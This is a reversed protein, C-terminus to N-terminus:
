EDSVFGTGNCHSCPKGFFEAITKNGARIQQVAEFAEKLGVGSCSRFIRIGDLGGRLIIRADEESPVRM